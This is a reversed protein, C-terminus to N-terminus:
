KIVKINKYNHTFLFYSMTFNIMILTACPYIMLEKPNYSIYAFIYILPFTILNYIIIENRTKM